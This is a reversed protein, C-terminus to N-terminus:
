KISSLKLQGKSFSFKATSNYRTKDKFYINLEAGPQSAALVRGRRTVDERHHTWERPEDEVLVVIGDQLVQGVVVLFDFGLPVDGDERHDQHVAGVADTGTPHGLDGVVVWSFNDLNRKRVKKVTLVITPFQNM